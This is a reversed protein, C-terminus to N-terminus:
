HPLWIDLKKKLGAKHLYNWGTRQRIKLKNATFYTSAQTGPKVIEMIKNIEVILIDSRTEDEVAM